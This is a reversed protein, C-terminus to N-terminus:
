DVTPRFRYLTLSSAVVLLSSASMGIAALWPPIMGAAAMPLATVNYGIAWAINRRITRRTQRAIQVADSVCQLNDKLAVFDASAHASQAGGGMAISVSAGALVPADNIGDGVAAVTDGACQLSRIESLKDNPLLAARWREIGLSEAVRRVAAPRDGSLLSVRIAHRQLWSVVEHANPRLEDHLRFSAIDGADSALTVVSAGDRELAQVTHQMRRACMKNVWSPSGFWWRRGEVVGTVGQGHASELQSPLPVPGVHHARLADAIPHNSQRELATAVRVCQARDAGESTIIDTVTLRGTTLTGTKDFVVHDM